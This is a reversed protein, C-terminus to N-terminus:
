FYMRLSSCIKKPSEKSSKGFSEKFTRRIISNKLYEDSFNKIVKLVKRVKGLIEQSIEESIKLQKQPEM